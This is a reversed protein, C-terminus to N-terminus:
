IYKCYNLNFEIFYMLILTKVLNMSLTGQISVIGTQNGYLAHLDLKPVDPLLETSNAPFLAIQDATCDGRSFSNVPPLINTAYLLNGFCMETGTQGKVGVIIFLYWYM